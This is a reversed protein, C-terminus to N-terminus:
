SPFFRSFSEQLLQEAILLLAMRLWLVQANEGKESKRFSKRMNKLLKKPENLETNMHLAKTWFNINQCLNM